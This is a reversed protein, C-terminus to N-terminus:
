RRIVTLLPTLCHLQAVPRKRTRIPKATLDFDSLDIKGEAAARNLATRGRSDQVEDKAGKELLAEVLPTDNPMYATGEAAAALPTTGETDALNLEAGSELLVNM